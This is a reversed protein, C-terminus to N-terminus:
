VQKDQLLMTTDLFVASLVATCVGLMYTFAEHCGTGHTVTQQTVSAYHTPM